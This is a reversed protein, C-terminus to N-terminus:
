TFWAVVTVRRGGRVQTVQHRVRPEFAVLLGTAGHVSLAADAYAPDAVFDHAYFQLVGGEYGSEAAVEREDNLFLVVSVKRARVHEPENDTGNTDRHFAFFDGPAYSIFQPDQVGTLTQGFRAALLPMLEELKKRVLEKREPAVTVHRARRTEHDVIVTPEKANKDFITGVKSTTSAAVDRLIEQCVEEDVFSPIRVVGVDLLTTALDM